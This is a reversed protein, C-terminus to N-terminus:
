FFSASMLYASDLPTLLIAKAVDARPLYFREPGVPHYIRRVRMLLGPGAGTLQFAPELQQGINGRPIQQKPGPQM